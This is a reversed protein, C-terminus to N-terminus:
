QEANLAELHQASAPTYLADKQEKHCFDHATEYCIMEFMLHLKQLAKQQRGTYPQLTFFDTNGATDRPLSHSAVTGM